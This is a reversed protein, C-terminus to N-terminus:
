GDPEVMALTYPEEGSSCAASWASLRKGHPWQRNALGQPLITKVLYDFHTPERFFDTKNTTIEDVCKTLEEKNVESDLVYKCYEGFSKIGLGRLRKQLRSEVLSKKAIPLKIGYNTHIFESIKLFEEDTLKVSLPFYGKSDSLKNVM